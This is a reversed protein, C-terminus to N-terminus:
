RYSDVPIQVGPRWASSASMKRRQGSLHYLKMPQFNDWPLMEQVSNMCNMGWTESGVFGLQCSDVSAEKPVESGGVMM